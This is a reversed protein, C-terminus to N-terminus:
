QAAKLWFMYAPCGCHCPGELYDGHTHGCTCPLGALYNRGRMAALEAAVADCVTQVLVETSITPTVDVTIAM